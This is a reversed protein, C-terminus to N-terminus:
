PETNESIGQFRRLKLQRLQKRRAPLPIMRGPREERYLMEKRYGAIMRGVIADLEARREDAMPDPQASTTEKQIDGEVDDNSKDLTDDQPYKEM